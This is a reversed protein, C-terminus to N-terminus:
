NRKDRLIVAIDNFGQRYQFVGRIKLYESIPFHPEKLVFLAETKLTDGVLSTKSILRGVNNGYWTEDPLSEVELSDPIKFNLSYSITSAFEFMIPHKRKESYFPNAYPPFLSFPKYIYKGPAIQELQPGRLSFTTTISDRGMEFGDLILEEKWESSLSDRFEEKMQNEQESKMKNRIKLRTNRSFHGTTIRKANGRFELNSDLSINFVYSHQNSSPSSYPIDKFIKQGADVGVVLASAGESNWPIQRPITSIDGPSYYSIQKQSDIVGILSRHFQWYKGQPRFIQKDRDTALVVFSNIGVEKLLQYFIYNIEFHTGYGNSFVDDANENEDYDENTPLDFVHTINSRVWNFIGDIKQADSPLESFQSAISSLKKPINMFDEIEKELRNSIIDWYYTPTMPSGYYLVLQSKIADDSATHPESIFAPLDEVFFIAESPNEDDPIQKISVDRYSNHWMYNPSAGAGFFWILFLNNENGKRKEPKQFKWRYEWEMLPIDKQATWFPPPVNMEYEYRYEIICSDTVGPLSFIKQKIKVEETKFADKELIQENKLEFITGDPLITRGTINTVKSKKSDYPLQVDAWTKGRANLIKIRRYVTLYCEEDILQSEDSFVKEFIMVAEFVGKASDKSIKWDIETIPLWTFNNQGYLTLNWLLFLSLFNKRFRIM